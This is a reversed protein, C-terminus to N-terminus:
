WDTVTSKGIKRSNETAPLILSSNLPKGDFNSFKDIKHRLSANKAQRLQKNARAKASVSVALNDTNETTKNSKTKSSHSFYFLGLLLTVGALIACFLVVWRPSKHGLIPEKRRVKM